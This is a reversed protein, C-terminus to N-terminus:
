AVLGIGLFAAFVIQLRGTAKLALILSPGDARTAVLKVPPAALPLTLLCLLSGTPLTGAITAVVIVAFAGVITGAYLARTTRRGVIVALTRKGAERDTDIDRVNNAILIATALLGMSAGAPWVSAPATEDFVFRTGVTAVLGFFVFVFVEGLGRYGYPSPGNTYGLAAAFAALGIVLVPPGAVLSLYVGAIGAIGFAVAVGRWMARGSILGSAVARRPGIRTPPDAGRTADAVDNAYNVGIQIAVAAVLAATFVDFRFVGDGVAFATGVVVPAVGAWLTPPRAANLWDRAKM